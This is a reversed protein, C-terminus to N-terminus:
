LPEVEVITKEILTDIVLPGYQRAEEVTLEKVLQLKSEQLPTAGKSIGGTLYFRLGNTVLFVKADDRLEHM